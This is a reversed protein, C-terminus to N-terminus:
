CWRSLGARSRRRDSARSPRGQGQPSGAAGRGRQRQPSRQFLSSGVQSADPLAASGPMGRAPFPPLAPPHSSFLVWFCCSEFLQKKCYTCLMGTCRSQPRPAERVCLPSPVAAGARPSVTPGLYRQGPPPLRASSWFAGTRPHLSRRCRGRAEPCLRLTSTGRQARGAAWPLRHSLPPHSPLPVGPPVARLGPPLRPAPGRLASPLSGPLLAPPPPGAAWGPALPQSLRVPRSRGVPAGLGGSGVAVAAAAGSSM